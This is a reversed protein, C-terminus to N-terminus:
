QLSRNALALAMEEGQGDWSDAPAVLLAQNYCDLAVQLVTVIDTIFDTIGAERMQRVQDNVQSFAINGTEQMHRAKDDMQSFATNGPERMQRIHDDMQSFATNGAERMQRIHRMQDEM